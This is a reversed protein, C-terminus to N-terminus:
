RIRAKLWKLFEKTDKLYTEALRKDIEASMRRIDEPYRTEIYYTTLDSVLEIQPGDLEINCLTVLKNLDHTKPPFKGTEQMVLGKLMKEVAQQCMFMVYLYRGAKYMAEATDKDYASVEVWNRVDKDM